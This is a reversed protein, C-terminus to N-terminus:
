RRGLQSCLSEMKVVKHFLEFEAPKLWATNQDAPAASGGGGGGGRGGNRIFTGHTDNGTGHRQYCRRSRESEVRVQSLDIPPPPQAM